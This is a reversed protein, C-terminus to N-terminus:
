DQDVLDASVACLIRELARFSGNLFYGEVGGLRMEENHYTDSKGQIDDESYTCVWRYTLSYSREACFSRLVRCGPRFHSEQTSM